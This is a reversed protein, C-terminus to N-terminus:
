QTTRIHQRQDNLVDLLTQEFPITPEWGTAARLRAADGRSVPINAPRMRAPDPCVEVPTKVFGLLTDLLNQISRATGSAVNYVDGPTGHQMLLHYARVVDRVDTFDRRADLSGVMLRPEQLGAEIRALQHAFDPAVFGTRQGPGLHNFPRARIVPLDHSLHYQLGLMDQTVKSVSYPNLPRLPTDETIPLAAPAGYVEASSVLLLRPPTTLTLCAQLINLQARINNELVAWAQDFSSGVRANAALHYLADPRIQDLLATTAAHDRLDLPHLTIPGPLPQDDADLVTGHLTVDPQHTLLHRALHRGVFGSIGTILVRM